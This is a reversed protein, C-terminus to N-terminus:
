GLTVPNEPTWVVTGLKFANYFREYSEVGINFARTIGDACFYIYGDNCLYIECELGKLHATFTLKEGTNSMREEAKADSNDIILSALKEMTQISISYVIDEKGEEKYYVRFSTSFNDPNYSTTIDAFNIIDSLTDFSNLVMSPKSDKQTTEHQTNVASTFKNDLDTDANLFAAALAICILVILAIIVKKM